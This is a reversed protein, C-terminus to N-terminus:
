GNHSPAAASQPAQTASTQQAEGDAPATSPGGETQAAEAGGEQKETKSKNVSETRRDEAETQRQEVIEARAAQEKQSAAAAVARDAGSPEAPALAARKVQQMKTVTAEPTKEESVDINVHGGVAYNRGDPGRQYDYKIGGRIHRGGAAVHAQEHNRVERDRAKLKDVEKQDEATLEEGNVSKDKKKADKSEDTKGAEQASKEDGQEEGEVSQTEETTDKSHSPNIHDQSVDPRELAKRAVSEEGKEASMLQTMTPLQSGSLLNRYKGLSAKRDASVGAIKDKHEGQVSRDESVQIPAQSSEKSKKVYHNLHQPRGRESIRQTSDM